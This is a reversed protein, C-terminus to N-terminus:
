WSILIRNKWYFPKRKNHAIAIIEICNPQVRYIINFPFRKVILRHFHHIYEPWIKPDNAILAINSNVEDFFERGLGVRQHNYWLAAEKFEKQADPHFNIQFV